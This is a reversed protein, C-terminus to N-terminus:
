EYAKDKSHIQYHVNLNGLQAFGKNCITCVHPKEGTHIRNHRELFCKNTFGKSCVSCVYPMVQSHILLHVKLAGMQAFEKGCVYCGYEKLDTHTQYHVNLNGKQAFGKGCYECVHPKEKTHILYHRALFCRSSFSKDCVDCVCPSKRSHHESKEDESVPNSNDYVPEEITVPHVTKLEDTTASVKNNKMIKIKKHSKIHSQLRHLRSFSRDCIECSYKKDRKSSSDSGSDIREVIVKEM